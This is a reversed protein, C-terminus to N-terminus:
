FPANGYKAADDLDVPKSQAVAKHALISPANIIHDVVSKTEGDKEWAGVKTGLQGEIEVWDGSLIGEVPKTFWITWKRKAERLKPVGNELYEYTYTEWLTLAKGSESVKVDGNVRTTAM